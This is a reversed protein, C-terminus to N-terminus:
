ADAVLGGLIAAKARSKVLPPMGIRSAKTNFHPTTRRSGELPFSWTTTISGVLLLLVCCAGSLWLLMRQHVEGTTSNLGEKISLVTEKTHRRLIIASFTRHYDSNDDDDDNVNDHRFPRRHTTFQITMMMM